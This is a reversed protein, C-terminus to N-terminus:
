YAQSRHLVRAIIITRSISEYTYFVRWDAVRLRWTNKVAGKMRKIEGVQIQAYRDIAETIRM